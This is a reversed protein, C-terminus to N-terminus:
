DSWPSMADWEERGLAAKLTALHEILERQFAATERNAALLTADIESGDRDHVAAVKLLTKAHKQRNKYYGKSSSKIAKLVDLAEARQSPDEINQKISKEIYKFESLLESAGSGGGLFLFAIIAILM